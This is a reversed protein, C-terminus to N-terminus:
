PCARPKQKQVQSGNRGWSRLGRNRLFDGLAAAASDFDNVLRSPMYGVIKGMPVEVTEDPLHGRRTLVAWPREDAAANSRHCVIGSESCGVVELLLASAM